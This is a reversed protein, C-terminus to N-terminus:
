DLYYGTYKRKALEFLLAFRFDEVPNLKVKDRGYWHAGDTTYYDFLSAISITSAMIQGENKYLGMTTSHRGNHVLCLDLEKYYRAQHNEDNKFQQGKLNFLNRTIREPDWPFTIVYDTVLNIEKDLVEDGTFLQKKEGNLFYDTPVMDWDMIKVTGEKGHYIIETLADYKIDNKIMHM